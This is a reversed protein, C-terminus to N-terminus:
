RPDSSLAEQSPQLNPFGVEWGPGPSPFAKEDLKRGCNPCHGAQSYQGHIPCEWYRIVSDNKAMALLLVLLYKM